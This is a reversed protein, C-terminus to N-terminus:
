EDKIVEGQIILGNPINDETYNFSPTWNVMGERIPIIGYYPTGDETVHYKCVSIPCIFYGHLKSFELKEGHYRCKNVM